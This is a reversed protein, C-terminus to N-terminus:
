ALALGYRAGRPPTLANDCKFRAIRNSLPVGADCVHLVRGGFHRADNLSGVICLWLNVFYAAAMAAAIAM